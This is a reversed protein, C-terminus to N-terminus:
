VATAMIKLLGELSQRTAEFHTVGPAEYEPELSMTGEYGDRLLARLQGALDVQGAGVIATQCKSRESVRAGQMVDYKSNDTTAVIEMVLDDARQVVMLNPTASDHYMSAYGLPLVAAWSGFPWPELYPALDTEALLSLEADTLVIVPSREVSEGALIKRGANVGRRVGRSFSLAKLIVDLPVDTQM